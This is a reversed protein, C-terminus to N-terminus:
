SRRMAYLRNVAERLRPLPDTKLFYADCGAKEADERTAMGATYVIIKVNRLGNKRIKRCLELGDMGPLRVDAVVVAPRHTGVLKWAADGDDAELVSHGDLELLTRLMTRVDSEDDVVLVPAREEANNSSHGAAM